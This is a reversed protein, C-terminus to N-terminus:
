KVHAAGSQITVVLGSNFHANEITGNWRVYGRPNAIIRTRHHVYDSSSHTHGHIWLAASQFFSEPLDSYFCPNLESGAYMPDM